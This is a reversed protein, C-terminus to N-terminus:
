SAGEVESFMIYQGVNPCGEVGMRQLTTTCKRVKRLHRRQGTSQYLELHARASLWLTNPFSFSISDGWLSRLPEFISVPIDNRGFFVAEQAKM